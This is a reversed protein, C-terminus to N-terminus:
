VNAAVLVCFSVIFCELLWSASFREEFFVALVKGKLTEKEKFFAMNWGQFSQSKSSLEWWIWKERCIWGFRFFAVRFSGVFSGVSSCDDDDGCHRGGIGLLGLRCTIRYFHKGLRKPSFDIPDNKTIKKLVDLHFFFTNKPINPDWSGLLWSKKEGLIKIGLKSGPTTWTRAATFPPSRHLSSCALNPIKQPILYAVFSAPLKPPIKRYFYYMFNQKIDYLVVPFCRSFPFTNIQALIQDRCQTKLAAFIQLSPLNGNPHNKRM